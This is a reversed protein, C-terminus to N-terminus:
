FDAANKSTISGRPTSTTSNAAPTTPSTVHRGPPSRTRKRAKGNEVDFMRLADAKTDTSHHRPLNFLADSEGERRSANQKSADQTGSQAHVEERPCQKGYHTHLDGLLVPVAHDLSELDKGETVSELTEEGVIEDEVKELVEDDEPNTRHKLEEDTLIEERGVDADNAPIEAGEAATASEDCESNVHSEAEEDTVTEDERDITRADNVEANNEPIESKEKQTEYTPPALQSAQLYPLVAPGFMDVLKVTVRSKGRRLRNKGKYRIKKQPKGKKLRTM